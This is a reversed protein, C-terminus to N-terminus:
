DTKNRPSYSKLRTPHWKEWWSVGTPEMKDLVHPGFQRKLVLEPQHPLSVKIDDMVMNKLPFITNPSWTEVESLEFDAQKNIETWGDIKRVEDEDAMVFFIRLTPRRHGLFKIHGCAMRSSGYGHTEVKFTLHNEQLLRKFKAGMLQQLDDIKAHVFSDTSWPIVTGHRVAGLLTSGALWVPVQIKRLCRTSAGLLLLQENLYSETLIRFPQEPDGLVPLVHSRDYIFYHDGPFFHGKRFNPASSQIIAILILTVSVVTLLLSLVFFWM